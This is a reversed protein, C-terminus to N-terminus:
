QKEGYLIKTTSLCEVAVSMGKVYITKVNDGYAAIKVLNEAKNADIEALKNHSIDIEKLNVAGDFSVSEISCDSFDAHEVTELNKFDVRTIGANESAVLKKLSKLGALMDIAADDANTRMINLSEVKALKSYDPNFMFDADKLSVTKANVLPNTNLVYLKTNDAYFEELTESEPLTLLNIETESIDLYRLKTQKSLDLKKLRTGKVNLSELNVLAKLDNYMDGITDGELNLSTVKAIDDERLVYDDPYTAYKQPYNERLWAFVKKRIVPNTFEFRKSEKLIENYGTFAIQKYYARAGASAKAYVAGYIVTSDYEVNADPALITGMVIAKNLKVIKAEYCNIILRSALNGSDDHVIIYYGSLDVVEGPINILCCFGSNVSDVWLYDFDSLKHNGAIHEQDLNYVMREGEDETAICFFGTEAPNKDINTWETHTSELAALNISRETYDGFEANEAVKGGSSQGGLINKGDLGPMIGGTNLIAKSIFLGLVALAALVLVLLLTLVPFGTKKKRVEIEQEDEPLEPVEAGVAISYESSDLRMFGSESGTNEQEGDKTM